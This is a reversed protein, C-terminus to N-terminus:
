DSTAALSQTVAAGCSTETDLGGTDFGKERTAEEHVHSETCTDGLTLRFVYCNLLNHTQTPSKQCM